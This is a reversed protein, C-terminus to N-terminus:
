AIRRCEDYIAPMLRELAQPDGQSWKILLGTVDTQSPASGEDTM